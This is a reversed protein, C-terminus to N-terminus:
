HVIVLHKNPRFNPRDTFVFHSDFYFLAHKTYIKDYLSVVHVASAWNIQFTTLSTTPSEFTLM